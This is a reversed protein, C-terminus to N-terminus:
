DASDERNLLDDLSLRYLDSLKILSVIDPYTKGNEWSSLTQRTVGIHAATQEQTM